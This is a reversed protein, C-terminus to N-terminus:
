SFRSMFAKIYVKASAPIIKRLLYRFPGVTLIVGYENYVPKDMWTEEFKGDSRLYGKGDADVEGHKSLAPWRDLIFYVILSQILESKVKLFLEALFLNGSGLLKAERVHKWVALARPNDGYAKWKRALFLFAGSFAWKSENTVMNAHVTYNLAKLLRAEHATLLEQRWPNVGVREGPHHNRYYFDFRNIKQYRPRLCLAQICFDIDQGSPINEDWGVHRDLFTRRWIPAATGWPLHRAIFRCLDDVDSFKNVLGESDGPESYFKRARFVAFDLEPYKRMLAVRHKLCDFALLDDSDLFIVFEGMTKRLGENRCVPAGSLKSSRKFIRIRSDQKSIAEVVADSGDESHDDVVICEFDKYTQGMVSELTEVVLDRRNKLPIVISVLARSISRKKLM